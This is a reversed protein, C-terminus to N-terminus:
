RFVAKVSGWPREQTAVPGRLFYTEIKSPPSGVDPPCEFGTQLRMWTVGAEEWIQWVWNDGFDTSLFEICCPGVFVSSWYWQSEETAEEDRYRIFKNDEFPGFYLEETYGASGPNYVTGDAFETSVWEWTGECPMDQALLPSAWLCVVLCAPLVSKMQPINM